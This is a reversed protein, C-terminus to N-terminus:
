RDTGTGVDRRIRGWVRHLYGKDTSLSEDFRFFCSRCLTSGSPEDELTSLCEICRRPGFKESVDFGKPTIPVGDVYTALAFAFVEDGPDPKSPDGAMWDITASALQGVLSWDATPREIGGTDTDNM